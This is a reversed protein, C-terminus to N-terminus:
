VKLGIPFGVIIWGGFEWGCAWLTIIRKACISKHLSERERKRYERLTPTNHLKPIHDFGRGKGKELPSGGVVLSGGVLGLVGM